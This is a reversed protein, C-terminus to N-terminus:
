GYSRVRVGVVLRVRVRIRSRVCSHGMSETDKILTLTGGAATRQCDCM